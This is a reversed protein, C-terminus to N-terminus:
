VVKCRHEIASLAAKHAQLEAMVEVCRAHLGWTDCVHEKTNLGLAECCQAVHSHLTVIQDKLERLADRGPNTLDEASLTEIHEKDQETM